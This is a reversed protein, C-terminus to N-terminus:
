DDGAVISPTEITWMGLWQGMAMRPAFSAIAPEFHWGNTYPAATGGLDALTGTGDDYSVLFRSGPRFWAHGRGLQTDRLWSQWSAYPTTEGSANTRADTVYRWALRPHRYKYVGVLVVSRGTGSSVARADSVEPMSAPHTDMDITCDPLWVGRMHETGTFASSRSAINGVIGMVTGVEPTTFTLAWTGTCNITVLGTGGATLTGTTISWTGSSPPRVAILRSKLYILFTHPFYWGEALSVSTPGGGSNTASVTVGAPVYFRAELL